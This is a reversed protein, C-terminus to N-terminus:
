RAKCGQGSRRVLAGLGERNFRVVWESVADNSCRGARHAAQRYTCGEAVALLTKARAVQEAPESACRALHHLKEQEEDSLARLPEKRRRSM